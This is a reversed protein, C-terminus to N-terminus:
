ARRFRRYMKYIFFLFAIAFVPYFIAANGVLWRVGLLMWLYATYLWYWFGTAPNQVQADKFTNSTETGAVIGPKPAASVKQKTGAIQNDLVGAISNRAGDVVSFVPEAASAVQPSLGAIDKQIAASSDITAATQSPSAAAAAPATVPKPKANVTFNQAVQETVSGDKAVLQASLPHAGASPTWLISATQTAGAALTIAVSGIKAGNDYFVLTGTFVASDTNSVVAYVHVPQGETVPTRSLFIPDKAFGAALAFSPTLVGLAFAIILLAEKMVM